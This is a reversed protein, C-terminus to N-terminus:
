RVLEWEFSPIFFYISFFECEININDIMAREQARSPFIIIFDDKRINKVINDIEKGKTSFRDLMRRPYAEYTPMAFNILM